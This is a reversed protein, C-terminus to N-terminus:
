RAQSLDSACMYRRYFYIKGQGDVKSCTDSKHDHYHRLIELMLVVVIILIDFPVLYLLLLNFLSVEAFRLLFCDNEIILHKNNQHFTM